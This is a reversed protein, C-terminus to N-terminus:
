GGESLLLLLLLLVHLVKIRRGYAALLITTTGERGKLPPNSAKSYTVDARLQRRLEGKGGEGTLAKGHATFQTDQRRVWEM